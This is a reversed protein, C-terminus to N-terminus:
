RLKIWLDGDAAGIPEDQQKWIRQFHDALWQEETGVYGRAVAMQYASLGHAGTPGSQVFNIAIGGTIELEIYIPTDISIDLLEAM